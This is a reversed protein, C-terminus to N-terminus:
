AVTLAFKVDHCVKSWDKVMPAYSDLKFYVKSM